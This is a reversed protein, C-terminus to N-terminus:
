PPLYTQKPEKRVVVRNLQPSPRHLEFLDTCAWSSYIGRYQYRQYRKRTHSPLNLAITYRAQVRCDKVATLVKCTCWYVLGVQDTSEIPRTFTAPQTLKQCCQCAQRHIERRSQAICSQYFSHTWIRCFSGPCTLSARASREQINPDMQPGALIRMSSFSSMTCCHLGSSTLRCDQPKLRM